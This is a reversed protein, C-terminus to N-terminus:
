QLTWVMTPLLLVSPTPPNTYYQFMIGIYAGAPFQTTSFSKTCTNQSTGNAGVWCWDPGIEISGDPTIMVESVALSSGDNPLPPSITYSFSMASFTTAVISLGGSTCGVNNITNLPSTNVAPIDILGSLPICPQSQHPFGPFGLPNIGTYPIMLNEARGPFHAPAPGPVGQPGQPGAAGTPGTPGQVGTAGTVGVPGAPGQPGTPGVAGITVGFTTTRSGSSTETVSLSYSGAPENAPLTAVIQTDTFSALSLAVNGLSVTPTTSNPSFGSGVITLQTVASNSSASIVVPSSAAFMSIAFLLSGLLSLIVKKM